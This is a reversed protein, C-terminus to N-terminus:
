EGNAAPTCANSKVTEYTKEFLEQTFGAGLIFDTAKEIEIGSNVLSKIAFATIFMQFDDNTKFHEALNIKNRNAFEVLLKRLKNLVTLNM